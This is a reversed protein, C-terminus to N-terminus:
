LKSVRGAWGLAILRQYILEAALRHAGLSFHGSIFPLVEDAHRAFEDRLTVVPIDLRAFLRALRREPYDVGLAIKSPRAGPPPWARVQPEFPVVVALYKAGHAHALAATRSLIAETLRWGRAVWPHQQEDPAFTELLAEVPMGAARSRTFREREDHAAFGLLAHEVVGYTASHRRLFNRVPQASTAVLESGREVFYPRYRDNDSACMGYLEITNNCVDNLPFIEQVVLDPEYRLGYEELAVQEQASGFDGVGLNIVEWREGNTSL